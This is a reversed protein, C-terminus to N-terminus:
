PISPLNEASSPQTSSVNALWQLLKQVEFTDDVFYKAKSPKQEQLFLNGSCCPGGCIFCNEFDYMDEDLRDDGTCLIFDPIEGNGVM